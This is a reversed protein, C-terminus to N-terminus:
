MKSAKVKTKHFMGKGLIIREVSYTTFTTTAEILITAPGETHMSAESQDEGDGFHEESGLEKARKKQAM